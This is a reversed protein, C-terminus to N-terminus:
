DMRPKNLISLMLLLPAAVVDRFLL